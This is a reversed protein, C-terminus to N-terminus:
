GMLAPLELSFTSGVGISSEVTLEGHMGRALERSIALGLGTGQVARTLGVDIQVFPQFIRDFQDPAIGPGTDSIRTVVRGMTDVDCHVVIRGGRNTFKMANSLLNLLIQEVKEGDAWAFPQSADLPVELSLGKSALQPALLSQCRTLVSRMSVAEAVFEVAGADLKAFNLVGNILGLLHQQSYKIRALDHAQVTSVPGRIGLQILDVYGGIANLPTRLEHSMMTLFDTKAQNALEAARRAANSEALLRENERRARVEDTIDTGHAIVADHSGDAELLPVCTVELIREELPAGRTRALWVPVERLVLSQGTRRVATIPGDIGQNQIEPLAAFLPKGVAHRGNGIIADFAANVLEFVLDPGRLVALFSPAQAFVVALRDREIDLALAQVRAVAVATKAQAAQSALQAVHHQLTKALNNATLVAGRLEIERQTSAALEVLVEVQAETWARPVLDIVCFSGIAHGNIIVPVGIYSAVGLTSVTPIDRYVPDARTDPIVLPVRAHIAYHCFSVGTLERGAGLIGGIGCASVYFDRTEDVLSFFATPVDLLRVALRTLRDFAPESPADLLGSHQVAELRQPDLLTAAVDLIEYIASPPPPTAAGHEVVETEIMRFVDPRLFVLIM